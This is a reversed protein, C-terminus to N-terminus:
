GELSSLASATADYVDFLEHFGALSLVEFVRQNAAALCMKGGGQRLAKGKVLLMALGASSVFNVDNLDVIIVGTRDPVATAFDGEIMRTGMTDLDGHVTIITIGSTRKEVSLTTPDNM